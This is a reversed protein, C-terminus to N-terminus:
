GRIVSAIFENKNLINEVQSLSDTIYTPIKNKMIIKAANQDLVFHQGAEFKIKKAMKEFDKWSIEKIFVANKDKKPDSSFLGTTNTINIFECKLYAALGAATGDSTNDEKFRLAGCFVIQNKRLLNKAQKMDKPISDNANKGFVETLFVAHLRTIAIGIESKEKTSKNFNNLASIYERATNGGGCVVIFKKDKNKNILEKFERLFKYDVKNPIIRSGGLSIVWIKEKMYM